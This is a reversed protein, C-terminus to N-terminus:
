DGYFDIMQWNSTKKIDFMNPM